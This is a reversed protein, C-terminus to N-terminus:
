NRIKNLKTIIFNLEEELETRTNKYSSIESKYNNIKDNHISKTGYVMKGKKEKELKRLHEENEKVIKVNIFEIQDQIEAMMILFKEKKFELRDIEKAKYLNNKLEKGSTTEKKKKNM